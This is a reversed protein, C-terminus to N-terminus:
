ISVAPYPLPEQSWTAEQFTGDAADVVAVAVTGKGEVDAFPVLYYGGSASQVLLPNGAAADKVIGAVHIDYQAIEDRVGNEARTSITTTDAPDYTLAYVSATAGNVDVSSVQLYSERPTEWAGDQAEVTGHGGYTASHVITAYQGYNPDEVSIGTLPQVYTDAFQQATVYTRNGLGAADPNNVWFGSLTYEENENPNDSARVGTVVLWHDYSGGAAVAGPVYTPQGDAGTVESALLNALDSLAESVDTRTSVTWDYSLPDLDQVVSWLGRADLRDSSISSVYNANRGYNFLVDQDSLNPDSLEAPGAPNNQPNWWLYSLMMEAAASANYKQVLDGATGELGVAGASIGASAEADGAATYGLSGIAPVDLNAVFDGLSTNYTVATGQYWTGGWKSWIAVYLTAGDPVTASASTIVGGTNLVQTGGLTTGVTIWYQEVAVGPTWTILVPSTTITTGNTPSQIQAIPLPVDVSSYVAETSLYWKGGIKSWINAYLSGGNLDTFIEATTSTTGQNYIDAGGSTSGVTIWYQSVGVGPSWVLNVPTSNLTSGPAPSIFQSLLNPTNYVVETSAFWLGEGSVKGKAMKTWLQVYFQGGTLPISVSQQSTGAAIGGNFVQTGQSTT